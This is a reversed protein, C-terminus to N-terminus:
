IRDRATDGMQSGNV